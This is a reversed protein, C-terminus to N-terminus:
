ITTPKFSCAKAVTKLNLAPRRDGPMALAALQWNPAPLELRCFETCFERDAAVVLVSRSNIAKALARALPASLGAWLWGTTGDVALGHNGCAKARGVIREFESCILDLSGLEGASEVVVLVAEHWDGAQVLRLVDDRLQPWGDDEPDDVAASLREAVPGNKVNQSIWRRWAPLDRGQPAGRTRFTRLQRPDKYGLQLCLETDNVPTAM